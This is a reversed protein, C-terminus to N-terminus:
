AWSRGEFVVMFQEEVSSFADSLEHLRLSTELALHQHRSLLEDYGTLVLLLPFTWADRLEDFADDISDWGSGCWEPFPLVSRIAGILAVTDVAGSVDAEVYRVAADQTYRRLAELQGRAVLMPSSRAHVVPPSPSSDLHDDSEASPETHDPTYYVEGSRGVVVRETGRVGSGRTFTARQTIARRSSRCLVARTATFALSGRFVVRACVLRRAARRSSRIRSMM